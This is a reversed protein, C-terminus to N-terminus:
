ERRCGPGTLRPGYAERVNTARARRPNDPYTWGDRHEASAPGYNNHDNDNAVDRDHRNHDHNYDDDHINDDSDHNHPDHVLTHVVVHPM